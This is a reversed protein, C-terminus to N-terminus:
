VEEVAKSPKVESLPTRAVADGNHGEEELRAQAAALVSRSLVGCFSGDSGIICAARVHAKAFLDYFDSAPADALIMISAPESLRAVPLLKGEHGQLAAQLRTRPVLGVCKLRDADLGVM